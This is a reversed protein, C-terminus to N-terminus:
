YTLRAAEAREAEARSPNGLGDEIAALATHLRIKPTRQIERRLAAEILEVAGPGDGRAAHLRALDIVLDAPATDAPPASLVREAAAPDGAAVLAEAAIRATAPSPDLAALRQAREAVGATSHSALAAGVLQSLLIPDDPWTELAAAGIAEVARFRRLGSLYGMYTRVGERTSPAARAAFPLQDDRPFLTAAEACLSAYDRSSAEDFAIHLELAAQDLRGAIALGRAALRHAFVDRPGVLLARDLWPYAAPDRRALLREAALDALHSEAPHRRFAAEELAPRADAPARQLREIDRDVTYGLPSAALAALLAALGALAWGARPSLRWGAGPFAIAAATLAVGAVAGSEWSFDVLNHAALAVLGALAAHARLSRTQFAGRARRLAIAFAAAVVLAGILGVDAVAQLYENELFAFRIAGATSGYRAFVASFSGRGVGTWLHDRILSLADRAAQWRNSTASASLLGAALRRRMAGTFLLGALVLGGGLLLALRRETREKSRRALVYLTYLEAAAGVAIGARSLTAVLALNSATCLAALGWRRAGERRVAEVLVSPLALAIFSAAHNPNVLSFVLLARSGAAPKVAGPLKIGVKAAAALALLAVLAWILLDRLRHRDDRELRGLATALAALGLLRALDHLTAPVDWTIPRWHGEAELGRLAARLVADSDPSLAARLGPPLPVLQVVELAALALLPMALPPLRAPGELLAAALALAGVAAVAITAPWRTAGGWVVAGLIATACLALLQFRRPIPRAL